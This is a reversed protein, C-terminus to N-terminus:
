TSQILTELLKIDEKLQRIYKSSKMSKIKREIRVAKAYNETPIVLYIKWDSAKATFRHNGYKHSIHSQLRSEVDDHTSGIYFKLLKESFLIYCANM